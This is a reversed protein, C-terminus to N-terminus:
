FRPALPLTTVHVFQLAITLFPDAVVDDARVPNLLPESEDLGVITLVNWRRTRYVIFEQHFFHAVILFYIVRLLILHEVGNALM